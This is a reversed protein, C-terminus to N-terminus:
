CVEESINVLFDGNEYIEEDSETDRERLEELKQLHTANNREQLDSVCQADCVVSQVDQVYPTFRCALKDQLWM